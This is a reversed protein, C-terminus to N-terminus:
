PISDLSFIPIISMMLCNLCMSIQLNRQWIRQQISAQQLLMPMTLYDNYRPLTKRLLTNRLLQTILSMKQILEDTFRKTKWFPALIIEFLKNEILFSAIKKENREEFVSIQSFNVYCREFNVKIKNLTIKKGKLNLSRVLKTMHTVNTITTDESAVRTNAAVLSTNLLITVWVWM